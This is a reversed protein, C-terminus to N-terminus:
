YLRLSYDPAGFFNDISIGLTATQYSDAYILIRVYAYLHRHSMLVYTVLFTVSMCLVLVFYVYVTM